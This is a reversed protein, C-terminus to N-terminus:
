DMLGYEKLKNRITRSTLGLVEAARSKNGGCEELTKLILRKEAEDATLGVHVDVRRPDNSIRDPSDDVPAGWASPNLHSMDVVTGPCLIVAREVVNRLERVNGPWSHSELWRMAAPDFDSIAKRSQECFERLFHRALLAVDGKRDRLAPLEIPVVCLRYFLDRRFAGEEVMDQLNRNTTAIVRVDVKVPRSGGVRDIEREQLARLLKAQLALPMESVEDLLLTGGNAQEFKGKHQASAGTFSGKEHGFLESELLNEPLAACNIAVFSGKARPSKKHILRAFLEKGTGSEGFVIVTADSQGVTDVMALLKLVQPDGTAIEDFGEVGEVPEALITQIRRLIQQGEIPKQLYDQAGLKMAEVADAVDAFATIMLVPLYPYSSKIRRLLEVGSMEPMRVDSLILGYSQKALRELAADPSAVADVDYGGRELTTALSGRFLDDDDVLLIRAM